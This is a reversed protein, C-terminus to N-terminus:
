TEISGRPRICMYFPHISPICNGYHCHSCANTHIDSQPGEWNNSAHSWALRWERGQLTAYVTCQLQRICLESTGVTQNIRELFKLLESGFFSSNDNLEILMEQRVPGWYSIFPEEMIGCRNKEHSFKYSKLSSEGWFLRRSLACYDDVDTDKKLMLLLLATVNCIPATVM